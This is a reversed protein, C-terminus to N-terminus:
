VGAPTLNHTDLARAANPPFEPRRRYEDLTLLKGPRRDHIPGYSLWVGAATLHDCMPQGTRWNRKTFKWEKLLTGPGWAFNCQVVSYYTRGPVVTEAFKKAEAQARHNTLFGM